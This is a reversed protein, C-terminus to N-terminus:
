APLARPCRATAVSVSRYTIESSIYSFSIKSPTRCMEMAAAGAHGFAGDGDVAQGFGVGHGAPAQAPENAGWGDDFEGGFSCGSREQAALKEMCAQM